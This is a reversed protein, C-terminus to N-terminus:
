TRTRRQLLAQALFTVAMAVLFAVAWIGIFEGDSVEEQNSAGLLWVALKMPAEPLFPWFEPRRIAIATFIAAAVAAGAALLVNLWPSDRLPNM